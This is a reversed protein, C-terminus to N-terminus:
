DFLRFGVSVRRQRPDEPPQFDPNPQPQQDPPQLLLGNQGGEGAVPEAIAQAQQLAETITRIDDPSVGASWAVNATDMLTAGSVQKQAFADVYKSLGILRLWQGVDAVSWQSPGLVIRVAMFEFYASCLDCCILM